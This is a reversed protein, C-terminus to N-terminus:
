PASEFAQQLEEILEPTLPARLFFALPPRKGKKRLAVKLCLQKFCLHAGRGPHRTASKPLEMVFGSSTNVVRALSLASQPQQCGVCM